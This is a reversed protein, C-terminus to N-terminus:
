PLDWLISHKICADERMLGYEQRIPPMDQDYRTAIGRFIALRFLETGKGHVGKISSTPSGVQERSNIHWSTYPRTMHNEMWLFINSIQQHLSTRIEERILDFIAQQPFSGDTLHLRQFIPAVLINWPLTAAYPHDM